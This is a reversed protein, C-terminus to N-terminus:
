KLVALERVVLEWESYPTMRQSEDEGYRACVMTHVAGILRDDVFGAAWHVAKM